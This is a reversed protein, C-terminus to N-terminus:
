RMLGTLMAAIRELLSKLDRGLEPSIVRQVLLLDTIAACEFTSARATEFFRRREAASKKGNGEAINLLMSEMARELQDKLAKHITGKRSLVDFVLEGFQLTAQYAHLKEHMFEM